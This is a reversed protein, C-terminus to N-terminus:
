ELLDTLHFPEHLKRNKEVTSLVHRKQEQWEEEERKYRPWLHLLSVGAGIWVILLFFALWGEWTLGLIIM